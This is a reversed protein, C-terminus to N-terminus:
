QGRGGTRPPEMRPEFHALAQSSPRYIFVVSYVECIPLFPTTKLGQEGRVQKLPCGPM